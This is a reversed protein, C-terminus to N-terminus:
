GKEDPKPEIPNPPPTKPSVKHRVIFALVNASVAILAAVQEDSLDVGFIVLAALLSQIVGMFLAPERDFLKM